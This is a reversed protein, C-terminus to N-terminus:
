GLGHDTLRVGARGVRALLASAPGVGPVEAGPAIEVLPVLVFARNAIEPHPIQLEPEDTIHRGYLLLDLDIERPGWREGPTRGVDREIDKFLRLLEHPELSTEIEVVANLFDLQQPGIPETEYVSSVTIVDVDPHGRLLGLASRLYALRDGINSGFGVFVQV